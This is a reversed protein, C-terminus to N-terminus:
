RKSDLNLNKFPLDLNEPDNFLKKEEAKKVRKKGSL